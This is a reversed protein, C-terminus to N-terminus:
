IVEFETIAEDPNFIHQGSRIRYTGNANMSKLEIIGATTMRHQLLCQGKFGKVVEKFDEATQEEEFAEVSGILGTDESLTFNINDGDKIYRAYIKGKSVFVSIGCVEAYTKINDVLDGEVTVGETYTHDRRVKFVAIPTNTKKLLDKLIYSAKTGKSYSISEVTKTTMDDLCKITTIKDAGERKTSVKSVFGNFIVGTDGKYGAEISLKSKYKFKSITSDTLNYIIIEAENAEMDDDFPVTFEFDLESSKITVNGCTIKAESGFVGNPPLTFDAKTLDQLSTVFRSVHKNQEGNMTVFKSNNLKM